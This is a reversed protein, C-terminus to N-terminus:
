STKSNKNKSTGKAVPHYQGINGMTVGINTIFEMLDSTDGHNYNWSKSYWLDVAGQALAWCALYHFHPPVDELVGAGIQKTLMHSLSEENSRRIRHLEELQEAVDEAYALRVELQQVLRDLDPRALRAEFYSQAAAGAVGEETKRIGAALCAAIHGEYDLMIRILIENKTLFHKYVTGKGIGAKTAIKSVTVADISQELFLELAADIIKKERDLFLKKKARIRDASSTKNSM